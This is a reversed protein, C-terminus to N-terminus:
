KNLSIKLRDPWGTVIDFHLDHTIEPKEFPMFFDGMSRSQHYLLNLIVMKGTLFYQRHSLRLSIVYEDGITM